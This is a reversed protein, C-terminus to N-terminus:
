LYFRGFSKIYIFCISGQWIKFLFQCSNAIFSNPTACWRLHSCIIVVKTYRVDMNLEPNKIWTWTYLVDQVSSRCAHKSLSMIFLTSPTCICQLQVSIKYIRSLCVVPYDKFGLQYLWSTFLLSLVFAIKAYFDLKGTISAFLGLGADQILLAKTTNIWHCALMPRGSLFTESLDIHAKQRLTM